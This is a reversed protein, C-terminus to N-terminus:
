CPVSSNSSLYIVCRPSVPYISTDTAVITFGIVEWKNAEEKCRSALNSRDYLVEKRYPNLFTFNKFINAPGDAVINDIIIHFTNFVGTLEDSPIFNTRILSYLTNSLVKINLIERAVLMPM